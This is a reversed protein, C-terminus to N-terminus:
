RFIHWRPFFRGTGRMYVIYEEGFREVMMREEKPTRTVMIIGEALIGTIGIFWNASLLFYAIWM